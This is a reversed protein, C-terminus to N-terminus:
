EPLLGGVWWKERRARGVWCDRSDARWSGVHTGPAFVRALRHDWPGPGPAPALPWAVLAPAALGRRLQFGRCMKCGGGGERGWAERVHGRNRALAPSGPAQRAQTREPFQFMWGKIWRSLTLGIKSQIKRDCFLFTVLEHRDNIDRDHNKIVAHEASSSLNM